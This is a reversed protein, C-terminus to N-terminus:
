LDFLSLIAITLGNNIYEQPCYKEATQSAFVCKVNWNKTREGERERRKAQARERRKATENQCRSIIIDVFGTRKCHFAKKKKMICMIISLTICTRM